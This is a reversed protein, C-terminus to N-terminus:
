LRRVLQGGFTTYRNRGRVSGLKLNVFVSDGKELLVLVTKSVQTNKASPNSQVRSYVAKGKMIDFSTSARKSGGRAVPLASM